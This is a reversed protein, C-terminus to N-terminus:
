FWKTKDEVGKQRAEDKMRKRLAKVAEKAPGEKMVNYDLLAPM